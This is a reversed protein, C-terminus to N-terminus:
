PRSLGQAALACGQANAGHLREAAPAPLATGRFFGIM